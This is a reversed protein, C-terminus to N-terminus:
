HFQEGGVLLDGGFDSGGCRIDAGNAEGAVAAAVPTLGNLGDVVSGEFFGRWLWFWGIRRGPRHRGDVVGVVDFPCKVRQLVASFTARVANARVRIDFFHPILVRHSLQPVVEGAVSRIGWSRWAEVSRYPRQGVAGLDTQPLASLPPTVRKLGPIGIARVRFDM